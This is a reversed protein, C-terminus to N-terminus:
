SSHTDGTPSWPLPTIRRKRPKYKKPTLPDVPTQTAQRRGIYHHHAGGAPPKHQNPTLPDVPGSPIIFFNSKKKLFSKSKKNKTNDQLTHDSNWPPIGAFQGCYSLSTDTHFLKEHDNSETSDSTSEGSATRETGGDAFVITFDVVVGEETKGEVTGNLAISKNNLDASKRNQQFDPSNSRCCDKKKNGSIEKQEPISYEWKPSIIQYAKQSWGGDCLAIAFLDPAFFVGSKASPTPHPSPFVDKGTFLPNGRGM